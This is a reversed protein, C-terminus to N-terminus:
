SGFISSYGDQSECPAALSGPGFLKGLDIAFHGIFPGRIEPKPLKNSGPENDTPGRQWGHTGNRAAHGSAPRPIDKLECCNGLVSRVRIQSRGCATFGRIAARVWPYRNSHPYSSEGVEPAQKMRAGLITAVSDSDRRERHPVTPRPLPYGRLPTVHPRWPVVGEIFGYIYYVLKYQSHPERDTYNGQRTAMPQRNASRGDRDAPRAIVAM